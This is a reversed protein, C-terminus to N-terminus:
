SEREIVQPEADDIFCSAMGATRLAGELHHSLAGCAIEGDSSLKSKLDEVTKVKGKEIQELLYAIYGVAGELMSREREPKDM